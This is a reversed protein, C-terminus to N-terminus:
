KDSKHRELDFLFDIMKTLCFLSFMLIFYTIMLTLNAIANYIEITQVFSYITLATYVIMLLYALMKYIELVVYKKSLSNPQSINEILKSEGIEVLKKKLSEMNDFENPSGCSLCEYNAYGDRIESIKIPTKCNRCNLTYSM